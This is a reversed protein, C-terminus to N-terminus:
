FNFDTNVPKKIYTVIEDMIKLHKNLSEIQLTTWNKEGFKHSEYEIRQGTFGSSFSSNDGVVLHYFNTYEIKVKEDKVLIILNAYEFGSMWKAFMIGHKTQNLTTNFMMKRRNKALSDLNNPDFNIYQISILQPKGDSDKKKTTALTRLSNIKLQYWDMVRSYIVDAKLGPVEIIKTLTVKKTDQNIPIENVLTDPTNIQASLKSCIFVPALFTSLRM